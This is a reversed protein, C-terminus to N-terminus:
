NGYKSKLADYVRKGEDSNLGLQQLIEADTKEVYRVASFKHPEDYNPSGRYIISEYGEEKLHNLYYILEGLNEASNNGEFIPLNTEYEPKKLSISM